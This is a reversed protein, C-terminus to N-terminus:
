DHSAQQTKSRQVWAKVDQPDVRPQGNPLRVVPLQGSAILRRVQQDTTCLQLATGYVNLLQTTM